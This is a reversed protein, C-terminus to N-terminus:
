PPNPCHGNGGSPIRTCPSSSSPPVAARDHSVRIEGAPLSKVGNRPMLSSVSPSSESASGVWSEGPQSNKVENSAVSSAFPSSALPARDARVWLEVARYNKVGNSRILSLSPSSALVPARATGVWSERAPSNKGGTWLMASAFPSSALAQARDTRIWSEGIRHYMVGNSRMSSAFPSSSLVPAGATRVWLKRAPSNKGDNSPLPYAIPSYAPVLARDTPVWTEGPPPNSVGDSPMSFVMPIIRFIFLLCGSFLSKGEMTSLICFYLSFLSSSLPFSFHSIFSSSHSIYLPILMSIPHFLSHTVLSLSLPVKAFQLIIRYFYFIPPLGKCFLYFFRMM